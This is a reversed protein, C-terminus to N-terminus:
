IAAIVGAVIGIWLGLVALGVGEALRSGSREAWAIQDLQVRTARGRRIAHVAAAVSALALAGSSTWGITLVAVGGPVITAVPVAVFIALSLVLCVGAALGSGLAGM